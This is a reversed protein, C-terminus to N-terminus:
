SQNECDPWDFYNEHFAAVSRLRVTECAAICRVHRRILARVLLLLHRVELFRSCLMHV